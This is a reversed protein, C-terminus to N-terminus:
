FLSVKRLSLNIKWPLDHKGNDGTTVALFGAAGTASPSVVAPTGSLPLVLSYFILISSM